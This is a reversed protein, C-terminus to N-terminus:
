KKGKGTSLFYGLGAGALVLGLGYPWYKRTLVNLAIAGTEIRVPGPEKNLQSLIWASVRSEQDPTFSISFYDGHDTLVPAGGAIPILALRLATATAKAPIASFIERWNPSAMLENM